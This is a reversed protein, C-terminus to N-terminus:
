CALAGELREEPWDALVTEFRSGVIQTFQEVLQQGDPSLGVLRLRGDTTTVERQILGRGSARNVLHPGRRLWLAAPSVM